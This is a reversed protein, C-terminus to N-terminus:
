HDRFGMSIAKARAASWQKPSNIGSESSAQACDVSGKDTFHGNRNDFTLQRCNSGENPLYLISGTYLENNSAASAVQTGSRGNGTLASVLGPMFQQHVAFGGALLGATLVTGFGLVVAVQRFGDRSHSRHKPRRVVTMNVFGL